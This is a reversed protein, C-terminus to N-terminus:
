SKSKNKEELHQYMLRLAQRKINIYSEETADRVHDSTECTTFITYALLSELVELIDTAKQFNDYNADDKGNHEIAESLTEFLKDRHNM